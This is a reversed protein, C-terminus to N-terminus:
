SSYNSFVKDLKPYEFIFGKKQAHIPLVRQSSWILSSREGLIMQLAWKPIKLFSPRGLNKAFKKTFVQNTVPELSSANFVGKWHTHELATIYLQVLDQLHIWSMWQNGDALTAGLGCKFAPLLKKLLGGKNSLVNSCRFICVRNNFEQAAKEWEICLQSAFGRGPPSHENLEENERHGYYGIASTSILTHISDYQNATEVLKKTFQIRSNMLLNKRKPTWNKDIIPAGALNIIASVNQFASPPFDSKWLHCEKLFSIKKLTTKPHRSIGTVQYGKRHLIQAISQGIFGSVGTILVKM